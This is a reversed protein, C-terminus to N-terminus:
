FMFGVFSWYAVVLLLLLVFIIGLKMSFCFSFCSVGCHFIFYSYSSFLCYNNYFFHTVFITNPWFICLFYLLSYKGPQPGKKEVKEPLKIEERAAERAAEEKAKEEAEQKMRLLYGENKKNFDEKFNCFSIITFTTKKTSILSGAM